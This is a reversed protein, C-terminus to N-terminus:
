RTGFGHRFGRVGRRAEQGPNGEFGVSEVFSELISDRCSNNACSTGFGRVAEGRTASITSFCPFYWTKAADAVKALPSLFTDFHSVRDLLVSAESV